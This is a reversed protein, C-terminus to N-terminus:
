PFDHGRKLIQIYKLLHLPENGEARPEPVSAGGLWPLHCHGRKSQSQKAAGSWGCIQEQFECGPTLLSCLKRDEQVSDCLSSAPAPVACLQAM